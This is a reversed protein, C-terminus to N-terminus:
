GGPLKIKSWHAGGDTTRLLTQRTAEGQNGSWLSWAASANVVFLGQLTVAAAPLKPKSPKWSQGQNNSRFLQRGDFAWWVLGDPSDFFPAPVRRPGSWTAGGDMTGYAYTLGVPPCAGVYTHANITLYGAGSAGLFVPSGLETSGQPPNPLSVPIWNAGGDQSVMLQQVSDTSRTTGCVIGWSPPIIVLWGHMRDSFTFFTLDDSLHLGGGSPHGADLHLRQEWTRGGDQTRYILLAPGFVVYFGVRSDIMQLTGSGQDPVTIPIWTTGDGLYFHSGGAAVDFSRLFLNGTPLRTILFGNAGAMAPLALRHWTEGGDQTRYLTAASSAFGPPRVVVYAENPSQAVVDYTAHAALQPIQHVTAPHLWTLTPWLYVLSAIGIATASAVVIALSRRPVARFRM